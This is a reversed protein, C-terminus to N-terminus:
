RGHKVSFHGNFEPDLITDHRIVLANLAEYRRHNSEHKANVDSLIEIKMKDIRNIIFMTAGVIVGSMTLLLTVGSFLAVYFEPSTWVKLEGSFFGRKRSM